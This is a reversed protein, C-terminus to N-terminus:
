LSRSQRQSVYRVDAAQIIHEIVITAKRNMADLSSSSSSEVSATTVSSLVSLALSSVGYRGLSPAYSSTEDAFTSEESFATEWRNNRLEKM